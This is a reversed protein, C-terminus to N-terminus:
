YGRASRSSKRLVMNQAVIDNGVPHRDQTNQEWRVYNGARKSVVVLKPVRNARMFEYAYRSNGERHDTYYGSLDSREESESYLTLKKRVHGVLLCEEVRLTPAEETDM